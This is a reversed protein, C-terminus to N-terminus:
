RALALFMRRTALPTKFFWWPECTGSIGSPPLRSRLEVGLALGPRHVLPLPFPLDEAAAM